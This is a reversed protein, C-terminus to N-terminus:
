LGSRTRSLRGAKIQKAKADLADYEASERAGLQFEDIPPAGANQAWATGRIVMMVVALMARRM